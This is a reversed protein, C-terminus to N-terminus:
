SESFEQLHCTPNIQFFRHIASTLTKRNIPKTIYDDFGGNMAKEKKGAGTDATQAIIKVNRNLERIQRAAEYGNLVPMKLDMIVLDIDQNNLYVEIAEAGNESHLIERAYDDLFLTLIMDASSNDDAILIKLKRDEISNRDGVIDYGSLGNNRPVEPQYPITFHFVSGKNLRSEVWIRGGMLEIFAKSIALGLGAGNFTRSITEDAQVFREFIEKLNGEAIGIGTDKVYFHLLDKEVFYGFTISGAPTFKIANKVLNTLIAHIKDHDTIIIAQKENLPIDYIIQLEKKVIEPMFFSHIFRIEENINEASLSLGMHGSEIKSIEILDNLINLMREGSKEIINIYKNQQEGTLEKKKLLEAFGLIGNMPTRIEHSINALFASKLRDNKEAKEKAKKLEENIQSIKENQLAIEVSDKVADIMMNFVKALSDLTDRRDSIEIHVSYDGRAVKKCAELMEKIRAKDSRERM